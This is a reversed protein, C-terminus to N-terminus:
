VYCRGIVIGGRKLFYFLLSYVRGSLEFWRELYIVDYPFTIEFYSRVRFYCHWIDAWIYNDGDVGIHMRDSKFMDVRALFAGRVNYVKLFCSCVACAM